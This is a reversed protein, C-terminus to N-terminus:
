DRDDATSHDLDGRSTSRYQAPGGRSEDGPKMADSLGTNGRPDGGAAGGSATLGGDGTGAGETLPPNKRTGGARLSDDAREHPAAGGDRVADSPGGLAGDRLSSGGLLGHATRELDTLPDDAAPDTSAQWKSKEGPGIEGDRQQAM